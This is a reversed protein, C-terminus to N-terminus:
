VVSKRDWSCFKRDDTIIMLGTTDKDLRGAPFLDRHLFNGPVLDLVIKEKKDKTASVYGKPKNLMLYVVKKYSIISSDIRIIDNLIDVKFDAKKIPVNNVWVRNELVFKKVDKRSFNTQSAIYKDIREM